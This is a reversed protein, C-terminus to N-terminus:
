ARVYVMALKNPLTRAICIMHGWTHTHTHTHTQTHTHAHTNWLPVQVRQTPSGGALRWGRRHALSAAGVLWANGGMLSYSGLVLLSHNRNNNNGPIMLIKAITITIRAIRDHFSQGLGFLFVRM